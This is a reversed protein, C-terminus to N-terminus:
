MYTYLHLNIGVRSLDPKCRVEKSIALATKVLTHFAHHNRLSRNCTLQFKRTFVAEDDDCRVNKIPESCSSFSFLIEANERVILMRRYILNYFNASRAARSDLSTRNDYPSFGPIVTGTITTRLTYHTEM